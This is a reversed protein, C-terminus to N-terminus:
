SIEYAILVDDVPAQNPQPAAALTSPPPPTTSAPPTKYLLQPSTGGTFLLKRTTGATVAVASPLLTLADSLQHLDHPTRYVVFAAKATLTTKGSTRERYPLMSSDAAPFAVGFSTGTAGALGDQMMRWQDPFDHRWSMLIHRPLAKQNAAPQTTSYDGKALFRVHLVLDAITQYDFEPNEPLQVEWASVAGANEFPLYRADSLNAEFLAPDNIASSTVIERAMDATDWDGAAPWAASAPPGDWSVASKVLRLHVNVPTHPGTVCPLSVSVSKMRMAYLTMTPFETEFLWNPLEFDAKGRRRLEALAGPDLLRLSISRSLEFERVNLRMHAAELEKLQLSLTEGALLGQRGGDWAGPLVYQESRGLEIEFARQAQNALDSALKFAQRHLTKLCGVMWGYLEENTFKSRMWDLVANAQDVQVDHQDLEKEALALRVEAALIQKEAQQIEQPGLKVQLTWDEQRRAYSAATLARGAKNLKTSALAGAAQAAFALAKSLEIKYTSHPGMGSVGINLNLPALIGSLLLLGNEAVQLDHAKETLSKATSEESNMFQRASYDALRTEAMSRAFQAAALAQKAEEIALKKLNRAARLLNMEHVERLEAVDEADKKELASLLQSGLGKVESCFDTARQLLYSFRHRPNPANLSDLVESLDVGAAVAKVLLAPDIPPAFLALDREQGALNRCHRIGWLRKAVRDWLALLQPNEPVCFYLAAPNAPQPPNPSGNPMQWGGAASVGILANELPALANSFADMHSALDAYCQERPKKGEVKRPRPGLLESAFMYLNLAENITETTDHGYLKDAWDILTEIYEMVTWRMYAEIRMEAVAHPEFPHKRWQAIQAALANRKATEAANAPVGALLRMLSAISGQSVHEHFPKIMWFRAKDFPDDRNTPDFIFSLWRLAEAHKGDLRLQRGILAPLHYFAEWNYIAYAGLYAFDFEKVPHHSHVNNPNYEAVFDDAYAQQRRLEPKTSALLGDLGYRHLEELMMCCLPHQHPEVLFEYRQFGAAQSAQATSLALWPPISVFFTNKADAVFFPHAYLATGAAQHPYTLLYAGNVKGLLAFGDALGATYQPSLRVHVAWPDNPHPIAEGMALQQGLPLTLGPRAVYMQFLDWYAAGAAPVIRLREDCAAIAFEDERAMLHSIDLGFPIWRRVHIRLESAYTETWFFFDTTQLRVGVSGNTEVYGVRPAVIKKYIDGQLGPGAARGAILPEAFQRKPKWKGFELKTYNLRVELYDIGASNPDSPNFKITKHAREAFTPWFLYLRRNFMAPILHDGEIDIELREWATWRFDKERRRYFYAYPPNWTRGFVHLTGTQLPPDEVCFGRIDLRSVESLSSLYTEYVKEVNADTLEDQLLHDQAERFFPSKVLRLSPDIWNEPYLFVKRNAEWVRYAKRWKWEVKDAAELCIDPELGLLGRQILLQCASTALVIRSTKMCPEMEPDLLFREYLGELDPALRRGLYYAVLADRLGKRLHDQIPKVAAAWGAAGAQAKLADHLAKSQPGDFANPVAAGSGPAVDWVLGVVAAPALALDEGLQSLSLMRGLVDVLDHRGDLTVAADFLAQLGVLGTEALISGQGMESDLWVAVQPTAGVNTQSQKLLYAVFVVSLPRLDLARAQAAIDAMWLLPRVNTAAQGFQNTLVTLAVPLPAQWLSALCLISLGADDLGVAKRVLAARSLFRHLETFWPQVDRPSNTDWTRRDTPAGGPSAPPDQRPQFFASRWMLGDLSGQVVSNPTSVYAAMLLNVAMIPLGFRAALAGDVADRIQQEHAATALATANTTANTPTNGPAPEILPAVAAEVAKWTAEAEKAFEPDTARGTGDLTWAGTGGLMEALRAPALGIAGLRDLGALFQLTRNPDRTPHGAPSNPPSPLVLAAAADCDSRKLGLAKALAADADAVAGSWWGMLADFPLALRRACELAAAVTAILDADIKWQNLASMLRDLEDTGLGSQRRLREFRMLRDAADSTLDIAQLSDPQGTALRALDLDCPASPDFLIDAFPFKGGLDGEGSVYETRLVAKLAELDEFEHSDMLPKVLSGPAAGLGWYTQWDGPATHDSILITWTEPNIGLSAAAWAHRETATRPSGWGEASLTWVLSAHDRGLAGLYGRGEDFASNYPLLWTCAAGALIPDIARFKDRYEPELLLAETTLETQLDGLVPRSSAPLLAYAMVEITLDIYPLATNANRCNLLIRPIDPRRAVLADYANKSTDDACVLDSKMWHLLDALYAAPSYVSQCHACACYDGSGFLTKLNPFVPQPIHWWGGQAEANILTPAIQAYLDNFTQQAAGYVRIAADRGVLPALHNLVAAKGDKLIAMSSTYGRQALAEVVDFRGEPALKLTRQLTELRLLAAEDPRAVRRADAPTQPSPGLDGFFARVSRRTLDLAPYAALTAAMEAAGEIRSRALRATLRATPAHANLAADIDRAYAHAPELADRYADPAGASEALAAWQGEDLGHILEQDLAADDRFVPYAEALAALMPAHRGLAEFLALAEAFAPHAAKAGADFSAGALLLDLAQSRAAPAAPMWFLAKAPPFRGDDDLNFHLADRGAALLAVVTGLAHPAPATITRATAADQLQRKLDDRAHLLLTALDAAGAVSVLAFLPAVLDVTPAPAPRRTPVADAPVGDARRARAWLDPATARLLTELERARDQAAALRDVEAPELGSMAPLAKRMETALATVPKGGLHPALIAALRDYAPLGALPDPYIVTVAVDGRAGYQVASSAVAEKSDPLFLRVVLALARTSQTDLRLSVQEGLVPARALEREPVVSADNVSAILGEPIGQLILSLPFQISIKIDAHM